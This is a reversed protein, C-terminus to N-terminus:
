CLTHKKNCKDYFTQSKFGDRTGRFILRYSYDTLHKLVSQEEFLSLLKYICENDTLISSEFTNYYFLLIELKISEPIEKTQINRIYGSVIHMYKDHIHKIREFPLSLSM